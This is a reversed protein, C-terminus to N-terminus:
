GCEPKGLKCGIERRVRETERLLDRRGAGVLEHMRYIRIAYGFKQTTSQTHDKTYFRENPDLDNAFFPLEDLQASSPAATRAFAAFVVTSCLRRRAGCRTM